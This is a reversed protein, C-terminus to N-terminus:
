KYQQVTVTPIYRYDWLYKLLILINGSPVKRAREDAVLSFTSLAHKYANYKDNKSVNVKM